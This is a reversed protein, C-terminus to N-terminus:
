LAKEEESIGEGLMPISVLTIRQSLSDKSCPVLSLSSCAVWLLVKTDNGPFFFPCRGTTVTELHHFGRHQQPQSPEHTLLWRKSGAGVEVGDLPRDGARSGQGEEGLGM